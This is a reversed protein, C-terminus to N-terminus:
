NLIDTLKKFEEKADKNEYLIRYVSDIIPTDADNKKISIIPVKQPM